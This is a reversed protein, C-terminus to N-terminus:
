QSDLPAYILVGCAECMPLTEVLNVQQRIHMPVATFCHGCAGDHLPYLALPARGRRIREYLNLLPRKVHKESEAREAKAADLRTGCDAQISAIEGRRPAQAESEEEVRRRAEEVYQQAEEVDDASRIWEAEEKALVSRALDLEAMLTSAERAGRVWELKQRRREQMLRYSEIKGELADRRVSADGARKEAGALANELRSMEADLEAIEPELARLEEEIAMVVRDKEQLALLSELDSQV